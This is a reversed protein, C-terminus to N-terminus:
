SIRTICRGVSPTMSSPIVADNSRIRAQVFTFGGFWAMEVKRNVLAEVAAAYDTVPIFEVKMGLAKELYAGLPKFKRQLETPSEDPIATVRFVQQASAPPALTLAAAFTLVSLIAALVAGLAAGMSNVKFRM